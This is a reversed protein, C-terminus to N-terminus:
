LGSSSAPRESLSRDPSLTRDPGLRPDSGLTRIQSLKSLSANPTPAGSLTVADKLPIPDYSHLRDAAAQLTKSIVDMAHMATAIEDRKARILQEVKVSVPLDYGPAGDEAGMKVLIVETRKPDDRYLDFLKDLERELRQLLEFTPAAKLTIEAMSYGGDHITKLM